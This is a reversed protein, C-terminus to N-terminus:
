QNIKEWWNNINNPELQLIGFDYLAKVKVVSIEM